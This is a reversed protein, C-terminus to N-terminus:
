APRPRYSRCALWAIAFSGCIVFAYAMVKVVTADIDLWYKLDILVFLCGLHVFGLLTAMSVPVRGGGFRWFALFSGPMVIMAMPALMEVQSRLTFYRFGDTVWRHVLDFAIACVFLGVLFAISRIAAAKM